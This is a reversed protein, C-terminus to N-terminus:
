LIGSRNMDLISNILSEVKENTKGIATKNEYFHSILALIPIILDYDLAVGDEQKVYKRVYSVASKTAVMIEEDDFDHDVRLYKKVFDLSLNDPSVEEVVQRDSM